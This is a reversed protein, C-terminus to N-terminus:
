PRVLEVFPNAGSTEEVIRAHAAPVARRAIGLMEERTRYVLQWELPVELYWRAAHDVMNAFLLSGGRALSGSLNRILSVATLQQLYDLLGATYVLDFEGLPAFLRGDRLVRKISDHLFTLKVRGPFREAVLPELRRWAHALAFKDQEFLVVELPAPLEELNEFLEVLEQAPGAAISLVRVPQRAGAHRALLSELERRVLDKRGRVAIASRSHWFALEVARAFLTTGEFPRAYIFNMVEYDGPYGFPKHRARHAGPAQLLFEDVFRRSWERAVPDRHGGPLERVAEDVAESLRVADPVFEERLQAVLADRAAHSPGNLVHWPLQAELARLERDADEFFLRMEAIASKYRRCGPVLWARGSARPAERRQMWRKMDRLQLIEDVDLLFDHFTIGVVVAGDQDRVSGVRTEGRFSTHGDFRLAVDLRQQPQVPVGPPWTFAAGNQSVDRLSCAHEVGDGLVEVSCRLPALDEVTYRQPRFFVARGEAGDLEEYPRVPEPIPHPGRRDDHAIAPASPADQAGRAVAVVHCESTLRRPSEQRAKM